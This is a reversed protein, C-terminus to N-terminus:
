ATRRLCAPMPGVVDTPSERLVEIEALIDAPVKCGPENPAPGWQNRDWFSGPKWVSTRARWLNREASVSIPQFVGSGEGGSFDERKQETRNQIQHTEHFTADANRKGNRYRKVRDTSVDSPYQWDKWDHVFVGGETRDFLKREVMTEILTEAATESVRLAFAVQETSPLIGGNNSAVCLLNLWPKVLKEPLKQIKPNNLIDTYMRFWPNRKAM